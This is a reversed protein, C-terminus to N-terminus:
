AGSESAALAEDQMESATPQAEHKTLLLLGGILSVLIQVARYSLSLAVAAAAAVGAPKFFYVFFWEGVGAGGPTIPLSQAILALPALAYYDLFGIGMGLARGLVAIATLILGHVVLSVAISYVVQWRAERYLLASRDLKKLLEAFPLASLLKDLRIARRLRKSMVVAGGIVIALLILNLKSAMGEFRGHQFLLAGSAVLALGLLGIARDVIVSLIAAPRQEPHDRAVMIAKVLDGGTMGPIINSFFIGFYGLKQVRWFRAEVHAARLLVHWRQFSLMAGLMYLLIAELMALPSRALRAIASAIGRGPQEKLEEKEADSLEITETGGANRSLLARKPRGDADAFVVVSDIGNVARGLVFEIGGEADREVIRGPVPDPGLRSPWTLRDRWGVVWFVAALLLLAVAVRAAGKWAAPKKKPATAGPTTESV